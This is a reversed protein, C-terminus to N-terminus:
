RIRITEPEKGTLRSWDVEKPEEHHFIMAEWKKMKEVAPPYFEGFETLINETTIRNTYGDSDCICTPLTDIFNNFMCGKSFSRNVESRVSWDKIGLEALQLIKVLDDKKVNGSIIEAVIREM